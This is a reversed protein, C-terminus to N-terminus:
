RRKPPPSPLRKRWRRSSTDFSPTKEKKNNEKSKQHDTIGFDIRRFEDNFNRWFNRKGLPTLAGRQDFFKVEEMNPVNVMHMYKKVSLLNDLTDNFKPRLKWMKKLNEDQTIPRTLMKMWIVRCLDATVAGPNKQKLDERRTILANLIQKMLWFLHEEIEDRAGFTKTTIFEIIDADPIIIVYKPLFINENLAEILSNYIRVIAPATNLSTQFYASINYFEYCYPVREKQIHAESKM